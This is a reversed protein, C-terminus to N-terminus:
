EGHRARPLYFYACWLAFMVAAIAYRATDVTILQRGFGELLGAALLMVVVGIMAVGARRGGARAA